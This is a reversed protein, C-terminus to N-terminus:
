WWQSIDRIKLSNLYLYLYRYKYISIFIFLYYCINLYEIIINSLKLIKHKKFIHM